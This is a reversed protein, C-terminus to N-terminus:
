ATQKELERTPASSCVEKNTQKGYQHEVSKVWEAIRQRSWHFGDNLDIIISEIRGTINPFLPHEVERALIPFNLRLAIHECHMEASPINLSDLVAGLACTGGTTRDYTEGFAQPRLKAGELIAEWLKM